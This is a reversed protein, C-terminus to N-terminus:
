CLAVLNIRWLKTKILSCHIAGTFIQDFVTSYFMNLMEVVVHQPFEEWLLCFVLALFSLAFAFLQASGKCQLCSRFRQMHTASHSNRVNQMIKSIGGTCTKIDLFILTYPWQILLPIQWHFLKLMNSRTQRIEPSQKQMLVICCGKWYEKEVVYFYLLRWNKFLLM